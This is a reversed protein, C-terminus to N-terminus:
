NPLHGVIITDTKLQEVDVILRYVDEDPNLSKLVQLNQQTKLNNKVIEATQISRTVDSHFIVVDGFDLSHLHKAMRLAQAQGHSNLSRLPDEEKAYAEAHRMLYLYM